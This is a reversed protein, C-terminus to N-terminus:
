KLLQNRIERVLVPTVNSKVLSAVRRPELPESLVGGPNNPNPVRIGQRHIKMAIPWVAAEEMGRLKVWRRLSEVMQRSPRKGRGPRRGREQYQWYGKGLIRGSTLGSGSKVERSLSDASEGSARLGKKRQSDALDGILGDLTSSLSEEVASLM